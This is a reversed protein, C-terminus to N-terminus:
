HSWTSSGKRPGYPMLWHGEVARMISVEGAFEPQQTSWNMGLFFQAVTERLWAALLISYPLDGHYKALLIGRQIEGVTIASLYTQDPPADEAFFRLVGRNARAGKRIESIVNTDLLFM